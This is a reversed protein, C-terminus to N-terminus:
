LYFWTRDSVYKTIWKNNRGGIEIRQKKKNPLNDKCAM